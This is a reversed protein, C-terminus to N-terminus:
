RWISGRDQQDKKSVRYQFSRTTEISKKNDYCYKDYDVEESELLTIGRPTYPELKIAGLSDLKHLMKHITSKSKGTLKSIEGVTPMKGKEKEFEVLIEYMIRQKYSLRNRLM